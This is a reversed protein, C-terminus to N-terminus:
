TFCNLAGAAMSTLVMLLGMVGTGNKAWAAWSLDTMAETRIKQESNQLSLAHDALIKCAPGGVRAGFAILIAGLAGQTAILTRSIFHLAGCSRM